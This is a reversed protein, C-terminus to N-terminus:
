RDGSPNASPRDGVANASSRDGTPNASTHKSEFFWRRRWCETGLRLCKRVLIGM